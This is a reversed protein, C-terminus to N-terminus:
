IIQVASPFQVTGSMTATTAGDCPLGSPSESINFSQNSNLTLQSTSNSWTGGLGVPSSPTGATITCTGFLPTITITCAVNSIDVSTTSTAAFKWPTSCTMSTSGGFSSTCRSFIPPAPNGSSDVTQAVAANGGVPAELYASLDCTVTNNKNDTITIRGTVQEITNQPSWTGAAAAGGALATLATVAVACAALTRTLRSGIRTM